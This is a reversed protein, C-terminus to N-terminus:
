YGWNMKLQKQAKIQQIMNKALLPIDKKVWKDQIGRYFLFAYPPFTVGMHNLPFTLASLAGLEGGQPSYIIFGAVKGELLFGNEELITLNDIFNKLIGPINFWYTPTAIIFGDCEIIAKQIPLLKSIKQELKGTVFPISHRYLDINEITAGLTNASEIFQKLFNVTKSDPNPSGNIALLKIKFSKQVGIVNEM